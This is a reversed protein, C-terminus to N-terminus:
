GAASIDDPYLTNPTMSWIQPLLLWWWWKKSPVRTHHRGRVDEAERLVQSVEVRCIDWVSRSRFIVACNNSNPVTWKESQEFPPIHKPWATGEDEAPVCQISTRHTARPWLFLRFTALVVPVIDYSRSRQFTSYRARFIWIITAGKLDQPLASNSIHGPLWGNTPKPSDEVM